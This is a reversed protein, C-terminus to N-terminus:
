VRCPKENSYGNINVEKTPSKRWKVDEHGDWAPQGLIQVGEIAARRRWATRIPKASHGQELMALVTLPGFSKGLSPRPWGKGLVWQVYDEALTRTEYITQFMVVGVGPVATKRAKDHLAGVYTINGPAPTLRESAWMRITKAADLSVDSNRYRKRPRGRTQTRTIPNGSAVDAFTVPAPPKALGHHQQVAKAIKARIDDIM